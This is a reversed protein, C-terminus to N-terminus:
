DQNTAVFFDNCFVIQHLRNPWIREDFFGVEAAINEHQPLRQALARLVVLVYQSDGTSAIPKGLAHAQNRLSFDANHRCLV